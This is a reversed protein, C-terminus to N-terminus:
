MGIAEELDGMMYQSYLSKAAVPVAGYLRGRRVVGSGGRAIPSGLSLDRPNLLIERATTQLVTHHPKNKKNHTHPPPNTSPQFWAIGCCLMYTRETLTRHVTAADAGEAAGDGQGGAVAMTLTQLAEKSRGYAGSSGARAADDDDHTSFQAHQREISAGAVWLHLPWIGSHIHTYVCTHNMQNTSPFLRSSEIM